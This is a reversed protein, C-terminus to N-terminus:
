KKKLQKGIQGLLKGALSADKKDIVGDKNIDLPNFTDAANPAKNVPAKVEPAKVENAKNKANNVHNISESYVM